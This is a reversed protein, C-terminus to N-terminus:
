PTATCQINAFVEGTIAKREDTTPTETIIRNWVSCLLPVYRDGKKAKVDITIDRADEWRDQLAYGEIFPLWEHPTSSESKLPTYGEQRAADGLEVVKQWDNQQRALDAKEYFYCWSAAPENGFIETPPYGATPAADQIRTLNSIPLAQRALDPLDPDDKDLESLVWLCNGVKPDYNLVLTNPITGEFRFTRFRTGFGKGNLLPTIDQSYKPSITYVWYALKEPAHPQSYLLNIATSTSFLSQEPFPDSEFFLGTQPQISPARWSLQWYFRTQQVWKWRYDNATRLNVGVALAILISVLIAKRGKTSSAWEFFAVWMLSAGFMSTLTYRDANFGDSAQRGILWAPLPGTALALLGLILAQLAWSDQAPHTEDEGATELHALYWASAIGALIAVGISVLTFPDMKQFLAPTLARYWNSILTFVSDQLFYTRLTELAALPNSLLTFLLSPKNPDEEAFKLVFLRWITYGGLLFLYPLWHLFSLWFRKWGRADSVQLLLLFLIVPRLLEVGVFYESISLNLTLALFSLGSFLFFSRKQPITSHSLDGNSIRRIATITCGLSAFYLGYELWAQHYTVAISQQSFSPYVVFLAAALAAPRRHRPFLECLVWWLGVASLWRLLLTLVHWYLPKAGLLTSFLVYSWASLPRDLRYYDWFASTGYLRAVLHPPWDDWAYGLRPALLGFSLLCLGLLALPVSWSPIHIRHYLESLKKVMVPLTYCLRGQLNTAANTLNNLSFDLVCRNGVM